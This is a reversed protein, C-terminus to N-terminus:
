WENVIDEVGECWDEIRDIIRQKIEEKRDAGYLFTYGGGELNRQTRTVLNKELLGSLAKQITSRDLEMEKSIRTASFKDDAKLLYVLVDHETKNLVFACRVIEELRIKKCSFSSIM